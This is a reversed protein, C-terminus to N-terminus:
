STEGTLRVTSPTGQETAPLLVAFTTGRGEYSKVEIFGGADQVIKQSNVLGLGTGKARTTFFPTFLKNILTSPIGPGTDTIIIKIFSEGERPQGDYYIGSRVSVLTSIGIKGSGNLASVANKLLNLLVQELQGPNILARPLKGGLREEVEIGKHEPELTILHVARKIVVNVDVRATAMRDAALGLVSSVVEDLRDVEDSIISLLRAPDKDRDPDSLIQAAVKIAGLPNKIEHALGAAMQGLSALRDRSKMQEYVQARELVGGIARALDALEVLEDASFIDRSTADSVILLGLFGDLSEQRITSVMGGKLDGLLSAAALLAETSPDLSDRGRTREERDRSVEELSVAGNAAREVLARTAVADLRHPAGPGLSAAQEFFTGEQDIIYIGASTVRRSERLADMIVKCAQDFDIIRALAPAVDLAFRRRLFVRRLVSEVYSRFFDFLFVIGAAILSGAYWHGAESSRLVATFLWTAIVISLILISSVALRVVLETMDLLREHRLAEALTFLVFIALSVSALRVFMPLGKFIIGIADLATFLATAASITVLLRVRAKTSLSPSREGSRYLTIIAAALFSFVYVFLAVGAWDDEPWRLAFFSMGCGTVVAGWLLRNARPKEHPMLEGFLSTVLAPIPLVLLAGLTRLAGEYERLESSMSPAAQALYWAGIDLALWFFRWRTRHTRGRMLTSFALIIAFIGAVFITPARAVM